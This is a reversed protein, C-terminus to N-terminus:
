PASRRHRGYRYEINCSGEISVMCPGVPHQPTCAESFLPCDQPFILGRLIEACMCGKPMEFMKLDIERLEDEYIKRADYREFDQRLKMGSAPIMPFGRWVTDGPEFVEEMVKLAKVNGERCVSRTYENEVQAVDNKIMKALMYVGMMLDLPEFGTVVQPVKYKKAITEYPRLGIITSVHGPEIFGQIKIEGMEILARLAPPIFRHCTLISFNEPPENLITAATTPATTEFGVAMFIVDRKTETALAVADEVSYVIRLDHGEARVDALSKRQGPVRVMDGFTVLINGKEALSIAEEIESPTTVCVPCGPGQRIDVGCKRLLYDLGYRVLTDQHTGCVHCITIDLEMEKLRELILQNMRKDRYRYM